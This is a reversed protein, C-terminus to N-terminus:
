GNVLKGVGVVGLVIAIFLVLLTGQVYTHKRRLRQLEDSSVDREQLLAHCTGCKVAGARSFQGFSGGPAAVNGCRPCVLTKM